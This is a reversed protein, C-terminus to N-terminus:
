QKEFNLYIGYDLRLYGLLLDSYRPVSVNPVTVGLMQVAKFSINRHINIAWYVVTYLSTYKRYIENEFFFYVFRHYDKEFTQMSLIQGIVHSLFLVCIM